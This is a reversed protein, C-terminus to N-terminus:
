SVASPMLVYILYLSALLLSLLTLPLAIRLFEVYRLRQGEREAMSAAILGAASGLLTGSSGVGAGLALAWWLPNLLEPSSAEMQKGTEQLLPIAAAIWPMHDMALSLLGTMWLMIMAVMRMNGNTLEILYTAGTIVWGTQVLGGALIFLGAFFLLTDWEMQKLLGFPRIGSTWKGALLLLVAGGAAIWGPQLGLQSAFVLLIIVLAYLIPVVARQVASHSSDTLEPQVISLKDPQLVSRQIRLTKCYCLWVLGINMVFLLLVIPGLATVFAGFDLQPNATGLWINAPQGILTAIGGLNAALISGILFPTASVRFAKAVALIIPVLLLMMTVADLLAAGLGALLMIYLYLLAPRRGSARILVSALRHIWGSRGLVAAMVVLGIWLLLTDWNIYLQFAHSWQVIGLLLFLVAAILAVLARNLQETMWIAYAVLFIVLAVTPQWSMMGATMQM